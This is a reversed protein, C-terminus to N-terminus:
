TRTLKCPPQSLRVTRYSVTLHSVPKLKIFLRRNKFQGMVEVVALGIVTLSTESGRSRAQRLARSFYVSTCYRRVELDYQVSTCSPAYPVSVSWYFHFFPGPRQVVSTHV